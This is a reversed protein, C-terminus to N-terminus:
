PVADADSSGGSSVRRKASDKRDLSRQMLLPNNRRTRPSFVARKKLPNSHTAGQSISYSQVLIEFPIGLHQNLRQIMDLTLSRKRSLIEATRTRGGLCRELDRQPWCRSEMYYEIAAIPDPLSIPFQLTEYADVLTALIDLRDYEPTGPTANFLREIEQLAEKYDIDTKIPRLEM